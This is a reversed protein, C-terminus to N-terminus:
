EPNLVLDKPLTVTVKVFPCVSHFVETFRPKQTDFREHIQVDIGGPCREHQEVVLVVAHM